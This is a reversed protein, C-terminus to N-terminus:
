AQDPTDREAEAKRARDAMFQDFEAQDKAQRLRDLFEEFKHQEEQLRRLTEDRYADFATNGSSRTMTMAHRGRHGCTRATSCSMKKSWIMYGLIALGAPWFAIFSLVMLIIWAAKGRADLWAEVRRAWALPGTAAPSHALTTM